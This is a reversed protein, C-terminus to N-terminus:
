VAPQPLPAQFFQPPPRLYGFRFDEGAAAYIDINQTRLFSPDVDEQSQSLFNLLLLGSDVPYNSDGIAEPEAPFRTLLLNYPSYYPVEIELTRSQDLNTRVAALGNALQKRDSLGYVFQEGSGGPVHVASLTAGLLNASGWDTIIKYRISGSWVAFLQSFYSLYSQNIADGETGGSYTIENLLPNVAISTSTNGPARMDRIPVRHHFAFRKILDAMTYTEGFRPRPQIMAPGVAFSPPDPVTEMRDTNIKVGTFSTPELDLTRHVYQLTSVYNPVLVEFDDAGRAYMNIDVSNAVNAANALKNQVFVYVYGIISEEPYYAPEPDYYPCVTKLPTSSIFPINFSVSSTQQLDVIISPNSQAIENYSATGTYQNPVFGVLLKGSHYHTAVFELDITIGGRWYTFANAIYSLYTPQNLTPFRFINPTVQLTYLKTGPDSTTDWTLQRFLMPTRAIKLLDMDASMPSFIVDDVHGSMPDVALRQSRSVGKTIALNENPNLTIPTSVPQAPYDFSLSKVSDILGKGAKFAQGFNGTLANGLMGFGSSAASSFSTPFLPTTIDLAPIDLDHYYIPLHVTADEAYVWITLTLSTSAGTAAKLQNIVSVRIKGLLDFTERSNTTLYSKPHIFPVRLEVPSSESAMIKVNPLGTAYPITYQPRVDLIAPNYNDTAQAFPDFSCILQGQHFQTANLQFRFIPSMKFYAYMSLTRTMLSDVTKLVEPFEFSTILDGSADSTDWTVQQLMVPKCLQKRALWHEDAMEAEIQPQSANLDNSMQGQQINTVRQEIFTTNMHSDTDPAFNSNM